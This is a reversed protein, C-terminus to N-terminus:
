LLAPIWAADAVWVIARGLVPDGVWQSLGPILDADGHVSTLNALWQAM